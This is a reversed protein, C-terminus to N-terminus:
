SRREYIPVLFAAEVDPGPVPVRVTLQWYTCERTSLDTGKQSAPVDIAGPFSTMTGEAFEPLTKQSSWAEYAHLGPAVGERPEVDNRQEIRRLTVVPPGTPRMTRSTQFVAEFRDGTFFPMKRWVLKTSGVRASQVVRRVLEVLVALAVLDFLCLVIAVVVRGGTEMPITWLVNLVAVFLFFFLRGFFAVFGGAQAGDPRAGKPDWDNDSTWPEGSRAPPPAAGDLITKIGISSVLLGALGFIGGFVLPMLTKKDATNAQGSFLVAMLVGVGMFPIGMVAPMLGDAHNKMFVVADGSPGPDTFEAWLRQLADSRTGKRHGPARLAIVLPKDSNPKSSTM